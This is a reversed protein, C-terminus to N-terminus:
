SKKNRKAESRPTFYDDAAVQHVRSVTSRLEDDAPSVGQFEDFIMTRWLVQM